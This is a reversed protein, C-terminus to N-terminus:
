FARSWTARASGGGIAVDFGAPAALAPRTFYFYSAAAAGGAVLVGGAVLLIAEITNARRGDAQKEAVPAGPTFNCAPTPPNCVRMVEDSLTHAHQGFILGTVVAGAGVVAVGLSLWLPRRQPELSVTVDINGAEADFDKSWPRYGPLQVEFFQKGPMVTVPDGLASQDISFFNRSVKLDPRTRARDPLRLRINAMGEAPAAGGGELTPDAEPDGDAEPSASSASATWSPFALAISGGVNAIIQPTQDRKLEKRVKAEVAGPLYDMLSAVTVEGNANIALKARGSLAGSLADAFYGVSPRRGTEFAEKGTQTSFITVSNNWAFAQRFAPTNRAPGIGRGRGAPNAPNDRCADLLLVVHRINSEEIHQRIESVRVASGTFKSSGLQDVGRVNSPLLYAEGAVEVGHGAFFLVLLGDDGQIEETVRDLQQLINDRTPPLPTEDAVVVVHKPDFRGHNILAESIRRADNSPGQLDPLMGGLDEYRSVGIILAWRKEDYPRSTGASPAGPKARPAPTAVRGAPAPPAAARIATADSPHGAAAAAVALVTAACAVALANRRDGPAM